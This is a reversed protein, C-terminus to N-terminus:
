EKIKSIFRKFAAETEFSIRVSKYGESNQSLSINSYDPNESLRAELRKLTAMQAEDVEDRAGEGKQGLRQVLKELGRVSLGEKIVKTALRRQETQSLSVLVRAHGASILGDSLADLVDEDLNLLRLANSITSRNKGSIKSIETQNLKFETVLAQYALAEEVPNLDVRQVNEVISAELSKQDSFDRLIAPITELGAEAAARLRREGAILEYRGSKESSPRVNIAQLVGQERISQALESIEDENFERRSQRPNLEVSQIPIEILQLSSQSIKPVESVSPASKVPAIAKPKSEIAVLSPSSASVKSELPRTEVPESTEQETESVSEPISDVKSPGESERLAKAVRSALKSANMNPMAVVKKDSM